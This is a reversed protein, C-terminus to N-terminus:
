QIWERIENKEYSSDKRYTPRYWTKLRKGNVLCQLEYFHHDERELGCNLCKPRNLKNKM